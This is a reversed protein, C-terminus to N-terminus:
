SVAFNSHDFYDLLTNVVAPDSSPVDDSAFDGAWGVPDPAPVSAALAAELALVKTSLADVLAALATVKTALDPAVVAAPLPAVFPADALEVNSTATWHTVNADDTFGVRWGFKTAGVWFAKGVTGLPVKKGRVVRVRDGKTVM